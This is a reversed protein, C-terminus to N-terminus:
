NRNASRKSVTRSNGDLKRNSRDTAYYEQELFEFNRELSNYASIMQGYLEKSM